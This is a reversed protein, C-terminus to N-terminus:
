SYCCFTGFTHGQSALHTFNYCFSLSLKSHQSQVSKLMTRWLRSHRELWVPHLRYEKSPCSLAGPQAWGTRRTKSVRKNHTIGPIDGECQKSSLEWSMRWFEAPLDDGRHGHSTMRSTELCTSVSHESRKSCKGTSIQWHEPCRIKIMQAGGSGASRLSVPVRSCFSVVGDEHFHFGNVKSPLCELYFKDSVLFVGGINTGWWNGYSQLEHHLNRLCRHLYRWCLTLLICHTLTLWGQMAGGKSCLIDEGWRIYRELGWNGKRSASSILCVKWLIM